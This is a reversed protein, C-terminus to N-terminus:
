SANFNRYENVFVSILTAVFAGIVAYFAYDLTSPYAVISSWESLHTRVFYLSLGLVACGWDLGSLFHKEKFLYGYVGFAIKFVGFLWVLEYVLYALQMKSGDGGLFQEYSALAAGFKYLEFGSYSSQFKFSDDVLGFIGGTLEAGLSVTVWPQVLTLVVALVALGIALYGFANTRHGSSAEDVNPAVKDQAPEAKKSVASGCRPCFTAKESISAGCSGCIPM